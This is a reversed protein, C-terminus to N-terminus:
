WDDGSEFDDDGYNEEENETDHNVYNEELNSWDANELDVILDGEVVEFSVTIEIPSTKETSVEYTVIGSLNDVDTEKTIKYDVLTFIIDAWDDYGMEITYRVESLKQELNIM